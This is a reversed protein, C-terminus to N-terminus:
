EKVMKNMLDMLFDRQEDTLESFVKIMNKMFKDDTAIIDGMLSAIYEDESLDVFVEGEGNRIWNDNVGYENCIDSLVRNTVSVAGTEIGGLNSRSINISKAFEQQTLKLIEKRLQRVRENMVNGGM